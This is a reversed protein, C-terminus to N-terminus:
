PPTELRPKQMKWIAVNQSSFVAGVVVYWVFHFRIPGAAPLTLNVLFYEKKWKRSIALWVHKINLHQFSCLWRHFSCCKRRSHPSRSFALFLEPELRTPSGAHWGVLHHFHSCKWWKLLLSVLTQSVMHHTIFIYHPIRVGPLKSPSPKGAIM